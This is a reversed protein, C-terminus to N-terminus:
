VRIVLCGCFTLMCMALSLPFSIVISRLSPAVRMKLPSVERSFAVCVDRRIVALSSVSVGIFSVLPFAAGNVPVPQPADPLVDLSYNREALVSPLDMTCRPLSTLYPFCIWRTDSKPPAIAGWTRMMSPLITGWGIQSCVVLKLQPYASDTSRTPCLFM